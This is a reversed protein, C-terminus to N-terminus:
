KRGKAYFPNPIEVAIGQKLITITNKGNEFFDIGRVTIIADISWQIMDVERHPIDEYEMDDALMLWECMQKAIETTEFASSKKDTWWSALTADLRIVSGDKKTCPIVALYCGNIGMAPVIIEIDNGIVLQAPWKLRKIFAKEEIKKSRALFRPDKRIDYKM